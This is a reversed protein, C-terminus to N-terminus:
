MQVPIGGKIRGGKESGAWSRGLKQHERHVAKILHPMGIVRGNSAAYFAATLAINKINGGALHVERALRGFDVDDGIPTERPFVSQWIKL